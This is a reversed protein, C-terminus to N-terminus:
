RSWRNPTGPDFETSNADKLGVKDRAFEIVALQM